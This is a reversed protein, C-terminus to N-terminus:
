YKSISVTVQEIPLNTWRSVTQNEEANGKAHVICHNLSEHM